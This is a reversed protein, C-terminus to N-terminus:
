HRRRRLVSWVGTAALLIAALGVLDILRAGYPGFVRGSHLDALVRSAPLSPMLAAAKRQAPPLAQAASWQVPEGSAARWDEGDTSAYLAGVDIVIQGDAIGIRRIRGDPLPPARLEDIRSGDDPKLLLLTDATALYLVGALEVMGLPQAVAPQAVHGDLRAQEGVAVLWHGGAEFGQDPLTAHLGYLDMLWPWGIRVGDLGLAPGENLLVGTVALWVLFVAAFLGARRHWRHLLVGLRLRGAHRPHHQRRTM